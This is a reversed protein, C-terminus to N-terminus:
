EAAVALKLRRRASREQGADILDRHRCPKAPKNRCVEWASEAECRCKVGGMDRPMATCVPYTREGANGEQFRFSGPPRTTRTNKCKNMSQTSAPVVSACSFPCDM